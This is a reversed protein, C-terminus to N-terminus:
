RAPRRRRLRGRWGARGGRQRAQHGGAALCARGRRPPPRARGGREVRHAPARSPWGRTLRGGAVDRPLTCSRSTVRRRRPAAAAKAADMRRRQHCSGVDPEVVLRHDPLGVAPQIAIVLDADRAIANGAHAPASPEREPTTGRWPAKGAQTRHRPHWRRAPTVPTSPHRRRRVIPAAPPAIPRAAVLAADPQPRTSWTRAGLERGTGPKPRSTRPLALTVARRRRRPRVCPPPCPTSSCGPGSSATSYRSVPAPRRQGLTGPGPRELQQLM